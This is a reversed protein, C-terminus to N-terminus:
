NKLGSLFFSEKKHLFTQPGPIKPEVAITDKLFIGAKALNLDAFLKETEERSVIKPM